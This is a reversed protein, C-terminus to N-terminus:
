VALAKAAFGAASVVGDRVLQRLPEPVRRVDVGTRPEADGRRDRPVPPREPRVVGATRRGAVDGILVQGSCQAAVNRKKVRKQRSYLGLGAAAVAKPLADVAGLSGKRCSQGSIQFGRTNGSVLQLFEDVEPASRCFKGGGLAM